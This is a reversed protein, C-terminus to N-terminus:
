CVWTFENLAFNILYFASFPPRVMVWDAYPYAAYAFGVGACLLLFRLDLAVEPLTLLVFFQLSDPALFPKKPDQTSGLSVSFAPLLNLLGLPLAAPIALWLATM